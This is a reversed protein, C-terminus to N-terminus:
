VVMYEYTDKAHSSTAGHTMGGEGMNDVGEIGDGHHYSFSREGM